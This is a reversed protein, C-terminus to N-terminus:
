TITPVSNLIIEVMDEAMDRPSSLSGNVAYGSGTIAVGAGAVQRLTYDLSIGGTKYSAANALNLPLRAFRTDSGADTSWRKATIRGTFAGFCYQEAIEGKIGCADAEVSFELTWDHLFIETQSVTGVVDTFAVTGLKGTIRNAM